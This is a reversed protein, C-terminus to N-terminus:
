RGSVGSAGTRDSRRPQAAEIPGNLHCLAQSPQPDCNCTLPPRTAKRVRRHARRPSHRASPPPRVCCVLMWVQATVRHRRHGRDTPPRQHSARAHKPVARPPRIGETEELITLTQKHGSDARMSDHSRTVVGHDQMVVSCARLVTGSAHLGGRELRGDEGRVLPMCCACRWKLRTVSARVM